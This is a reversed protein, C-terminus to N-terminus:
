FDNFVQKYSYLCEVYDELYPRCLRRGRKAGYAELCEVANLQFDGCRPKANGEQCQASSLHHFMEVFNSRFVGETHHNLPKMFPDQQPGPGEM